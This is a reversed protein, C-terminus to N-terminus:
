YHERRHIAVKLRYIRGCCRGVSDESRRCEASAVGGAPQTLARVATTMTTRFTQQREPHTTRPIDPGALRHRLGLLAAMLDVPEIRASVTGRTQAESIAELKARHADVEVPIPETRDLLAWATLRVV